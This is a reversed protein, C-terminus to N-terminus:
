YALRKMTAGHAACVRQVQTPSLAHRGAGVAGSHFFRQSKKPRERFGQAAEQAALEEFRSFRIAAELRQPEIVLGLGRLARGFHEIPDDLLDEYRLVTCNLGPADLWSNVHGSWDLLVQRVQPRWRAPGKKADGGISYTPNCLHDLAEDVLVGLHRALSPLVDLPNRVLYVAGRTARQSHLPQGQPTITWADHTKLYMPQPKQALCAYIDPRLAAIEEDTFDTSDELLAQELLGRGSGIPLGELANISVPAQAQSLYNKLFVRFWTNGSKPYSAIWFIGGPIQASM